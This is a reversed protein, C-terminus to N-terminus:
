MLGRRVPPISCSSFIRAIQHAFRHCLVCEAWSDMLHWRSNMSLTLSVPPPPRVHFAHMLSPDINTSLDVKLLWLKSEHKRNRATGTPSSSRLAERQHPTLVKRSRINTSSPLHKTLRRVFSITTTLGTSTLKPNISKRKSNSM